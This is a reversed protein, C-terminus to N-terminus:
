GPSIRTHSAGSIALFRPHCLELWRTLTQEEVEFDVIRVSYGHKELNAAIYALGLPPMREFFAGGEKPNVFLIDIMTAEHPNFEWLSTLYRINQCL